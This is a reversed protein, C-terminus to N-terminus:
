LTTEDASPDPTIVTDARLLVGEDIKTPDLYEPHILLANLVFRLLDSALAREVTNSADIPESAEKSRKKRRGHVIKSRAGYLRKVKSVVEKAPYAPDAQLLALAAARLRLKYSLSQNEDDGLLLELGITGDLIADAPDSRTLCSNLRNLALRMAESQSDAAAQYLRRVEGLQDTTVMASQNVWGYNDFENPYRRITTGYVPTLDCFYELTWGRPVWLVQAYGTSIGTAVRLAGFFSDIADLVNPSTQSLSRSVEAVDHLTLQWGNSIFAHTAAGAVLKAAGSGIPNIRARGLQLKKPLKANYAMKNLRFHDVDFHTTIIPVVLSLYLTSQVSGFVLPRIIADRRKADIPAKLGFIQLYRGVADAVLKDVPWDSLRNEFVPASLKLQNGIEHDRLFAALDVGRPLAVTETIASLLGVLGHSRVLSVYNRPSNAQYFGADHFIPFGSDTLSMTPYDSYPSIYLHPENAREVVAAHLEDFAIAFLKLYSDLQEELSLTSPKREPSISESTGSVM